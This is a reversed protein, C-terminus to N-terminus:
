TKHAVDDDGPNRCLEALRAANVELPVTGDLRVIRAATHRAFLDLITEYLTLLPELRAAIVASDLGDFRSNGTSRGAIRQAAVEPAVEIWVLVDPAFPGLAAIADALASASHARAEILMSWLKQALGQDIVVPLRHDRRYYRVVTIIELARGLRNLSLPRTTCCLRLAAGAFRWLDRDPKLRTLAIDGRELHPVGLGACLSSKGAGPLGALEIIVAPKLTEPVTM